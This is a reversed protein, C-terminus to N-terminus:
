GIVELWVIIESLKVMGKDDLGAYGEPKDKNSTKEFINTNIKRTGFSM